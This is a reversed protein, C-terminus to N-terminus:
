RDLEADRRRSSRSKAQQGRDELRRLNDQQRMHRQREREL